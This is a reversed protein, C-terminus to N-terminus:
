ICIHIVLKCVLVVISGFSTRRQGVRADAETKRARALSVGLRGSLRLSLHALARYEGKARSWEDAGNKTSDRSGGGGVVIYFTEVSPCRRVRTRRRPGTSSREARRSGEHRTTARVTPSAEIHADGASRWISPTTPPGVREHDALTGEADGLSCSWDFISISRAGGM